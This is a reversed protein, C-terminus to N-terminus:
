NKSSYTGIRRWWIRDFGNFNSLSFTFVSHIYYYSYNISRYVIEQDIEWESGAIVGGGKYMQLRLFLAIVSMYMSEIHTPCILEVSVRVGDISWGFSKIVPTTGNENM